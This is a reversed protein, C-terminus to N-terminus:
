RPIKESNSQQIGARVFWLKPSLTVHSAFGPM